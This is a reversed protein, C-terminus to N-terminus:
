TRGRGRSPGEGSQTRTEGEVVNWHKCEATTGLDDEAGEELGDERAVERLRAGGGGVEAGLGVRGALRM